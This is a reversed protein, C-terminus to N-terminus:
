FTFPLFNEEKQKKEQTIEQELKIIADHAWQCVRYNPSRQWEQLLPIFREFHTDGVWRVSPRMRYFINNLAEIPCDPELVVKELRHHWCFQEDRIETLPIWSLIFSYRKQPDEKAWPLYLSEPLDNFFGVDASSYREEAFPRFSRTGGNEFLERVAEWVALTQSKVCLKLLRSGADNTSPPNYVCTDISLLQKSLQKVFAADCFSTTSLQKYLRELYHFAISRDYCRSDLLISKLHKVFKNSIILNGKCLYLSIIDLAASFGEFSHSELKLLFEEFDEFSLHNLARNYALSSCASPEVKGEYVLGILMELSRTNIELVCMIYPTYKKLHASVSILTLCEQSTSPNSRAFGAVFGSLADINAILSNDELHKVLQRFMVFANDVCEALHQMAVFSSELKEDSIILMAAKLALVSDSAIEEALESAKRLSYRGEDEFSEKSCAADPDYYGASCDTIYFILRDLINTPLLSEALQKVRAKYDDPAESSDFYLWAHMQKLMGFLAHNNERTCEAYLKIDDFLNDGYNLLERIHDSVYQAAQEGNEGGQQVFRTLRVLAQRHFDFIEDYTEPEWDQLPPRSGLQEVGGDRSFYSAKLMKGLAQLCIKIINEHGSCLYEDLLRLRLAPEAETGSLRLTYLEAFKPMELLLLLRAARTFTKRPFALKRLTRLHCNGIISNLDEHTVSGLCRELLSLVGCPDVNVLAEVASAGLYSTLKEYTGLYDGSLLLRAIEEASSSFDLGKLQYLFRSFLREQIENLLYDKSTQPLNELGQAALRLTLVFPQAKFYDGVRVVVGRPIFKQLKQYMQEATIGAIKPAVVELETFAKNECGIHGFLCLAHLALLAEEDPTAQGWLIHNVLEEIKTIPNHEEQLAELVVVTMRPFGDTLEIIFNKYPSYSREERQAIIGEILQKSAKDLTITMVSSGPQIVSETNITVLSCESERMSIKKVLQNHLSDDCDDVILIMRQKNVAIDHALALINEKGVYANYYVLSSILNEGLLGAPSNFLEYSLRSKGIGSGGEIRVIKKPEAIHMGFSQKLENFTYKQREKGSSGGSVIFRHFEDDVWKYNYNDKDRGWADYSSFGGYRTNNLIENVWLAVSSYTNVWNAIKNADYIEIFACRDPNLGSERIAERINTKYKEITRTVIPQSTFLVYSGQKNVVSKIAESPTVEGQRNKKVIEDKIKVKTLRGAKSQFVIFNSPFYDTCLEGGTWEIRGDEGGDPVTIQMPITATYLPIGAKHAEAFMLKALLQPLQKADLLQIQDATVEFLM